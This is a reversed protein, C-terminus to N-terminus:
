FQDPTIINSPESPIEAEKAEALEQAKKMEFAQKKELYRFGLSLIDTTTLGTKKHIEKLLARTGKPANITIQELQPM